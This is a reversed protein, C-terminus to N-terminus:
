VCTRRKSGFTKSAALIPSGRRESTHQHHSAASVGLSATRYRSNHMSCLPASSLSQHTLHLRDVDAVSRELVDVRELIQHALIHLTVVSVNTMAHGDCLSCEDREGAYPCVVPQRQLQARILKSHTRHQCM